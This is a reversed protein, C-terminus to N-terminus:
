YIFCLLWKEASNNSAGLIDGNFIIHYSELTHFPIFFLIQRPNGLFM